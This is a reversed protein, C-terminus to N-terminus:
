CARRLAMLGLESVQTAKMEWFTPNLVELAVYGSYNIRKLVAMLPAFTFDGDGPFIRDSDAMLERPLGAVDCLQVHALNANTLRELDAAKSPGKYYHFLDLCVGVNPERIEEVLNLATELNNCIAPGGRFELALTVDFGAAWQAAQKLAVAARQLSPLDVTPAYDAALLLRPIQLAQCLELRRRFHTFHAQRQEGQALLLGGQYAAAVPTLNNSTFLARVDDLTTTELHKELKTLWVEVATWGTAAFAAIDDAFSTPLTTAQSICLKM